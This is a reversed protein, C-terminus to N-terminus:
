DMYHMAYTATHVQILLPYWGVVMVMVVLAVVVIVVLEYTGMQALPYGNDM